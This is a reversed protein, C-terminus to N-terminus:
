EFGFKIAYKSKGDPVLVTSQRFYLNDINDNIVKLDKADLVKIVQILDNM